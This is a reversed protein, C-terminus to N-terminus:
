ISHSQLVTCSATLQYYILFIQYSIMEKLVEDKDILGSLDALAGKAILNDVNINGDAVFFDGATGSAVDAQFQTQADERNSYDDNM